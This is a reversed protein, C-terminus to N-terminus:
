GSSYAFIASFICLHSVFELFFRAACFHRLWQDVHIVIEERCYKQLAPQCHLSKANGHMSSLREICTVGRPLHHLKLYWKCVPLHRVHQNYRLRIRESKTAKCAWVRFLDLQLENRYPNQNFCLQIKPSFIATSEISVPSVAQPAMVIQILRIGGRVYVETKCSAIDEISNKCHSHVARALAESRMM